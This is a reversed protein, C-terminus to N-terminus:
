QTLQSAKIWSNESDPYGLWKVFYEKVGSRKREKLIKEIKFEEHTAKTLEREYFSGDIVEDGNYNELIYRPQPLNTLVQKIKFVEESFNPNYGRSFKDKKILIRVKEGARYKPLKKDKIKQNYYIELRSLVKERNEEKFARNPSMGTMRNVRNNFVKLALELVDLTFPKQREEIIKYMINQLSRQAREVHPAKTENITFLLKVKKEKCYKKFGENTFEGGKDVFITKPLCGIHSIINKIASLTSKGDKRELVRIFLKRSFVDLLCLLYRNSNNKINYDPLYCIDIQWQQNKGYIFFPNHKIVRKAEKHRSYTRIGSLEDEIEKVSKAGLYHNYIKNIGSYAFNRNVNTWKEHFM